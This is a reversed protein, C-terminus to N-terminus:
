LSLRHQRTHLALGIVEHPVCTMDYQVLAHTVHQSTTNGICIIWSLQQLTGPIRGGFDLIADVAVGVLGLPQIPHAEPASVSAATDLSVFRQGAGTSTSCTM